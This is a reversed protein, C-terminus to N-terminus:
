YILQCMDNIYKYAPQVEGVHKLWIELIAAMVHTHNAILNQPFIDLAVILLNLCSLIPPLHAPSLLTESSLSYIVM